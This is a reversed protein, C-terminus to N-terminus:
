MHINFITDESSVVNEDKFFGPIENTAIHYVPLYLFRFSDSDVRSESDHNSIRSKVVFTKHM